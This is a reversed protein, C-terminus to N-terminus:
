EVKAMRKQSHRAADYAKNAASCKHYDSSYERSECKKKEHQKAGRTLAVSRKETPSTNAKAPHNPPNPIPRNPGNM